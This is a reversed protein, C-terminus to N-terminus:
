LKMIYALAYYPPLVSVTGTASGSLTHTHSGSSGNNNISAVLTDVSGGAWTNGDYNPRSGSIANTGHGHSPMQAVSLTTAGAAGSLATSVNQTEAGGKAEVAYKGGAGMVMRDRLDPTGSAGTCLAWGAPVANVAGSWMVIVGKPIAPQLLKLLM